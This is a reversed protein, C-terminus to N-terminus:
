WETYTAQHIETKPETVSVSVAVQLLKFMIIEAADMVATYTHREAYSILRVIKVADLTLVAVAICAAPM